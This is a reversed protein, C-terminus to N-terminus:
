PLKSFWFTNEFWLQKLAELRGTEEARDLFNEVWNLLLPDDAPLAIGLPEYSLLSLVSILGSDPYRLVSVVCMHYDAVLADAKDQLVFFLAEDYNKAPMFKATPVAKTVYAESTSGQLATLTIDAENIESPHEVSALSQEKTLLCKGSAQYPGVFAVRLNRKPTITMGSIVMDVDGSELAGLLKGFPMDKVNLKVGMAAAIDEALDIELGIIEGEKTKMNLPPMNAASGVILEGRKLIRDLVPGAASEALVEAVPGLAVVLVVTILGALRVSLGRKMKM